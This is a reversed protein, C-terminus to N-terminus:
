LGIGWSIGAEFGKRVVIGEISGLFSMPYFMMRFDASILQNPAIRYQFRWFHRLSLSTISKPIALKERTSYVIDNSHYSYVQQGINPDYSHSSWDNFEVYDDAGIIEFLIKEVGGGFGFITNFRTAGSLLINIDASLGGSFIEAEYNWYYGSYHSNDGDNFEYTYHKHYLDVDTSRFIFQASFFVPKKVRRFEFIAQKTNLPYTYTYSHLDYVTDTARMFGVSTGLWFQNTSIQDQARCVYFLQVLLILLPYKM